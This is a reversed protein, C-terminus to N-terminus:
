AIGKKLISVPFQVRTIVTFFYHGVVLRYAFNVKKGRRFNQKNNNNIYNTFSLEFINSYIYINELSTTIM